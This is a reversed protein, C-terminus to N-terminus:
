SLLLCEDWAPEIDSVASILALGIGAIGELLGPENVWGRENGQWAKFGALGDEFRAMKLTEAFWYNSAEKLEELGTYGYMRNFIHAIGATGHCLGADVVGNEVLGRRKSAHLITDIAEQEWDKRALAQSAHWLAVSIGMDGYCWALRSNKARESIPKLNEFVHNPFFSNNGARNKALLLSKISESILERVLSDNTIIYDKSLISIIGSIGHAMGLNIVMKDASRLYYKWGIGNEADCIVKIANLRDVFHLNKTDNENRSIFMLYIGLSEHLYDYLGKMISENMVKKILPDYFIFGKSDFSIFNQSRLHYLVWLLGSIGNGFSLLVNDSSNISAVVEELRQKAIDRIREDKTLKGYYFLFIVEGLSGGLLAFHSNSKKECLISNISELKDYIAARM